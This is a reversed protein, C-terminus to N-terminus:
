ENLNRVTRVQAGPFLEQFRKVGPDSLARQRIEEEHAHPDSEASANQGSALNEGAEVRVRVAKGIAQSAIRQVAPERLTLTMPKPARIVLESGELRVESSQLADATTNMGAESLASRLVQRIDGNEGPNVPM